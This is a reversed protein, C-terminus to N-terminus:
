TFFLCLTFYEKTSYILVKRIIKTSSYNSTELTLPAWALSCLFWKLSLCINWWSIKLVTGWIQSIVHCLHHVSVQLIFNEHCMLVKGKQARSWYGINSLFCAILSWARQLHTFFEKSIGNPEPYNASMWFQLYVQFPGSACLGGSERLWADILYLFCTHTRCTTLSFQLLCSFSNITPLIHKQKEVM